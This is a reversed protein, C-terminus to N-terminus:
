RAFLPKGPHSRCHSIERNPHIQTNCRTAADASSILVAVREFPYYTMLVLARGILMRTADIPSKNHRNVPAAGDPRPHVPFSVSIPDM